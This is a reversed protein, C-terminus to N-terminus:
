AADLTLVAGPQGHVNFANTITTTVNDPLNLTCAAVATKNITGFTNAGTISLTGSSTNTDTLTGYTRGGGAFTRATTTNGTLAITGTHNVTGAAVSWPTAATTSSITTIGSMNLTGNSMVVKAAAGALTISFGGDNFTGSTLTLDNTTLTLADSLLWSGSANAFTAARLSKGATTVTQQTASSSVFGITGLPSPYSMGASLRLAINGAGATGDGLNLSVAQQTLTGTYGDCDLSRAVRTAGTDITVNGSAADLRVDDAATPATTDAAGGSTTSWTADASWNGGVARAYKVGM